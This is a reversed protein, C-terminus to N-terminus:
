CCEIKAVLDVCIILLMQLLQNSPSHLMGVFVDNTSRDNWTPEMLQLSGDGDISLLTSPVDYFLTSGNSHVNTTQRSFERDLTCSYMASTSARSM